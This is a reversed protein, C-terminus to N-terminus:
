FRLMLKQTQHGALVRFTTWTRAALGSDQPWHRVTRIPYASPGFPEEFREAILEAGAGDASWFKIMAREDRKM